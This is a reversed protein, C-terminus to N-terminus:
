ERQFLTLHTVAQNVRNQSGSYEHTDQLVSKMWAGSPL